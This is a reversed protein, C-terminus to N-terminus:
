GMPRAMGQSRKFAESSHSILFSFHSITTRRMFICFRRLTYIPRLGYFEQDCAERKRNGFMSQTVAFSLSKDSASSIVIRSVSMERDSTM